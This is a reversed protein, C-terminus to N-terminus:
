FCDVNNHRGRTYYNEVKNQKELKIDDVIILTKLNPDIEKPDSVCEYNDFCHVQISVNENERKNVTFKQKLICESIKREPNTTKPNIRGSSTEKRNDLLAKINKNCNSIENM